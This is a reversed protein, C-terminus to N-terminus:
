GTRPNTNSRWHEMRWHHWGQMMNWEAELADLEPRHQDHIQQTTEKLTTEVQESIRAVKGALEPDHYREIEKVLIRRLEGPHLAELADLETGGEGFREEFKGRSAESEKIPTRPLRYHLCQERTLAVPQLQIDLHGDIGLRRTLRAM